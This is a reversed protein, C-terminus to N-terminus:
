PRLTQIGANAPIVPDRQAAASTATICCILLLAAIEIIM